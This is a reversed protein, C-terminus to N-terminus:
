SKMLGKLTKGVIRAIDDYSDKSPKTIGQKALVGVIAKMQDKSLWKGSQGRVMEGVMKELPGKAKYSGEAEEFPCGCEELSESKGLARRQAKVNKLAAPSMAVDKDLKKKAAVADKEDYKLWASMLSISRMIPKAIRQAKPSAKKYAHEFQKLFVMSRPPKGSKDSWKIQDRVEKAAAALDYDESGKGAVVEAMDFLKQQVASFVKVLTPLDLPGRVSETMKGKKLKRVLQNWDKSGGVANVIENKTAGANAAADVAAKIAKLNGSDVAKSLASLAPKTKVDYAAEEIGEGVMGQAKMIARAPKFWAADIVQVKRGKKMLKAAIKDAEKTGRYLERNVLKGGPISTDVIVFYQGPRVEETVDEIKAPEVKTPKSSKPALKHKGKGKKGCCCAEGFLTIRWVDANPAVRAVVNERIMAALTNRVISKDLGTAEAIDPASLIGGEAGVLVGLIAIDNEPLEIGEERRREESLRQLEVVVEEALKYSPGMMDVAMRSPRKVLLGKKVLEDASKEVADIKIKTNDRISRLSIWDAKGKDQDSMTYLYDMISKQPKGTPKGSLRMGTKKAVAKPTPAKFKKSSQAHGKKIMNTVLKAMAKKDGYLKHSRGSQGPFERGRMRDFEIRAGGPGEMEFEGFGMHKVVFGPLVTSANNSALQVFATDVYINKGDKFIHGASGGRETLVHRAEEDWKSSEALMEAQEATGLAEGLEAVTAPAAGAGEIGYERHSRRQQLEVIEELVGAM